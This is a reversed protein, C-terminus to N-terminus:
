LAKKYEPNFNKITNEASIGIAECADILLNQKDKLLVFIDGRFAFRNEEFSFSLWYNSKRSKEFLLVLKYGIWGKENEGDPHEYIAWYLGDNEITSIRKWGNPANGSFCPKKRM